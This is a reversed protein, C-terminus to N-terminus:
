ARTKLIIAKADENKRLEFRSRAVKLDAEGLRALQDCHGELGIHGLLEDIISDVSESM